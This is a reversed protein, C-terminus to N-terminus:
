KFRDTQNTGKKSSIGIGGGRQRTGIYSRILGYAITSMNLLSLKLEGGLHEPIATFMYTIM